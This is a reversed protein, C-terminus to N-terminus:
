KTMKNILTTLLGIMTSMQQFLLDFKESQKLLIKEISNSLLYDQQNDSSDRRIRVAKLKESYLEKGVNEKGPQNTKTETPTTVKTSQKDIQTRHTPRSTKRSLIERYVECGKYNAPHPGQCLACMAPTNRGVKPCESTKHSQACKVCRYPRMCYNKTHGYQQCRQCQVISKKKRPDEIVVAQHYIYKIEKCAKNNPGPMLNVFFTSTPKKDPGYKSNIIEGVVVNGTLEIEEKIASPPTSHHLNRIVIRYCRDEKTNFTHGILHHERVLKILKKYTEITASSVRIQNQNVVKYTFDNQETVTRLLETLKNVDKVGYLVIPPPKSPKKQEVADDSGTLDIPLDKFRNSTSIEPSSDSLKKRKAGRTTPIQQWDPPQTSINSDGTFTVQSTQPPVTAATDNAKNGLSASRPRAMFLAPHFAQQIFKKKSIGNGAESAQNNAGPCDETDPKEPQSSIHKHKNNEM